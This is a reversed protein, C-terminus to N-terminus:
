NYSELPAKSKNGAGQIKKELLGAEAGDVVAVFISRCGAAVELRGAGLQGEQDHRRDSDSSFKEGM